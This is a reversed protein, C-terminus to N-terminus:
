SPGDGSDTDIDPREASRRSRRGRPDLKFIGPSTRILGVFGAREQGAPLPRRGIRYITFLLFLAHVASTYYFLAHSGLLTVVSAGIFPGVMAGIGFVLFLGAAVEVFEDPQALDNAHAV